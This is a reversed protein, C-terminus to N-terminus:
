KERLLYFFGKEEYNTDKKGKATIVYYYEGPSAESSGIKGDWYGNVDDWEYIKKGWRNFIIAHFEIISEGHVRFLDNQGDNNPTFVNPIELVPYADVCVPDFKMTDICGQKSTAVLVIQYCGEDQFAYLPHEQTTTYVLNGDEDFIRWSYKRGNVTTNVFQVEYPAAQHQEYVTTDFQATIQGTDPVYISITDHCTVGFTDPSLTEGNVIVSHYSNPMLGTQSVSTPNAYDAAPIWNFTYYQPQNGNATSLHIEGNEQMCTTAVISDSPNFPAPENVMVTVTGSHCGWRNYTVLRVTHQEGTPWGVFITPSVAPDGSAVTDLIGTSYQWQFDTIGYNVNNPLNWTTATIMSTFPWHRCAPVTAEFEGTPNPAFYLRLTDSNVCIENTEQWVFQYYQNTGSFVSYCGTCNLYLSDNYIPSSTSNTYDFQAQLFQTNWIGTGISPVAEM